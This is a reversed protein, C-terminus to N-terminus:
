SDIAAHPGAHSVAATRAGPIFRSWIMRKPRSAQTALSTSLRGIRNTRSAVSNRAIERLTGDASFIVPTNLGVLAKAFESTCLYAHTGARWDGAVFEVSDFPRAHTSSRAHLAPPQFRELKSSSAARSHAFGRPFQYMWDIHGIQLLCIERSLMEQSLWRLLPVLHDSDAAVRFRADDELVLFVGNYPSRAIQRYCEQHSLWCGTVFPTAFRRTHPPLENGNIADIRRFPVQMQELHNSIATWRSKAASLNIM